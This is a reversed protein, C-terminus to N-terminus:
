NYTIHNLASQNILVHVVSTQTVRGGLTQPYGMYATLIFLEDMNTQLECSM